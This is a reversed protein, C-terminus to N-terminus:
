HSPPCLTSHPEYREEARRRPQLSPESSFLAARAATARESHEEQHVWGLTGVVSGQCCLFCEPLGM